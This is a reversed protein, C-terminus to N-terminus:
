NQLKTVGLLRYGRKRERYLNIELGSEKLAKKLDRRLYGIGKIEDMVGIKELIEEDTVYNEDNGLLLGFLRGHKSDTSITRIVGSGFYFRGEVAVSLDSVGSSDEITEADQINIAPEFQAIFPNISYLMSNTIFEGMERLSKEMMTLSPKIALIIAENLQKVMGLQVQSIQAMQKDLSKAVSLMPNPYIAITKNDEM